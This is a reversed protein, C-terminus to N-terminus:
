MNSKDGDKGRKSETQSLSLVESRQMKTGDDCTVKKFSGLSMSERRRNKEIHDPGARPSLTGDLATTDVVVAGSRRARAAELRGHLILGVLPSGGIHKPDKGLENAGEVEEAGLEALGAGVAAGM